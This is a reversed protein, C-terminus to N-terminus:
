LPNSITTKRRLKHRRISDHCPNFFEHMLAEEASLRCRPNVALCRDILNFLSEPILELFDIRRTNKACWDRLKMSKLYEIDLLDMPFSSECDHLRAVEWIEESGRLKAIEKLNQVPDGGFPARGIMLYLLTVGASWIDIKCGQHCSKLLVEPARFGKTGVCPGERKQKGIAKNKFIGSGAVTYGGYHLPMPTLIVHRRDTQAKLAAVRKRQSIPVSKYNQSNQMAEHVFNLLEKRGKCPMPQNFHNVPTTKTSTQDRASTVGSIDATQSGHKSTQYLAPIDDIHGKNYKKLKEKRGKGVNDNNTPKRSHISPSSITARLFIPHLGVHSPEQKSNRCFKQYLDSALNFDILYGKNLKRSFLFNGPKVDRHVVGEKHLSSLAKFMCYGFWQVEFLNIENKLVEPRDHEIHELVFCHLDGSKFSGEYKIVFNRGGFRELMKLENKIHHSHAKAHPCKVAFIKGDEKRQARYVTGYGGSGEEEEVIFSEFNPMLIQHSSKKFSTSILDVRNKKDSPRKTFPGKMMQKVISGTEVCRSRGKTFPTNNKTKNTTKVLNQLEGASALGNKTSPEAFANRELELLEATMDMMNPSFWCDTMAYNEATDTPCPFIAAAEMQCSASGTAVPIKEPALLQCNILEDDLKMENFPEFLEYHSALPASMQVFHDEALAENEWNAKDMKGGVLYTAHYDMMKSLALAHGEPISDNVMKGPSVHEFRPLKIVEKYPVVSHSNDRPEGVGIYKANKLHNNTFNSLPLPLSHAPGVVVSSCDMTEIGVSCWEELCSAAGVDNVKMPTGNSLFLKNSEDTDSQVAGREYISLTRKKFSSGMVLGDGLNWARRKRGPMLPVDRRNRLIPARVSYGLLSWSVAEKVFQGFATVAVDSVSVVGGVTLILPSGPIQCFLVVLDPALDSISALEALRTPGGLRILVTLLYWAKEIESSNLTLDSSTAAAMM